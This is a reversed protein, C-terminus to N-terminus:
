RGAEDIARELGPMFGRGVCRQVRKELRKKAEEKREAESYCVIQSRRKKTEQTDGKRHKKRKKGKPILGKGQRKVETERHLREKANGSRQLVSYCM